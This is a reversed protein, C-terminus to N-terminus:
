NKNLAGSKKEQSDSNLADDQVPQPKTKVKDKPQKKPPQNNPPAKQKGPPEIRKGPPNPRAPTPNVNQQPPRQQRDPPSKPQPPAKIQPTPKPQQPAKPQPQMRQPQTIHPPSYPQQINQNPQIPRNTAPPTYRNPASPQLPQEPQRQDLDRQPASPVQPTPDPGAPAPQLSRSHQIAEPSFSQYVNGIKRSRDANIKQPRVIKIQNGDITKTIEDIQTIAVSRRTDREIALKVPADNQLKFSRNSFIQMNNDPKIAVEAINDHMFQAGSVIVWAENPIWEHQDFTDTNSRSSGAGYSRQQSSHSYWHHGRSQRYGGYRHGSRYYANYSPPKPAWGYYGNFFGWTVHAPAWTYGPIWVWGFGPHFLWNGYHHPIWGWPEYATWTWGYSTYSWAGFSYPRWGVPVFPIWVLEKFEAMYQWSGYPALAAHFDMTGSEYFGPSYRNYYDYRGFSMNFKWAGNGFYMSFSDASIKPVIMIAAVVSLVIILKKM